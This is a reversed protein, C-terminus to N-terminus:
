GREAVNAVSHSLRKVVKGFTTDLHTLTHKVRLCDSTTEYFLVLRRLPKIFQKKYPKAISATETQLASSEAETIGRIILVNTPQEEDFEVKAFPLDDGEMDQVQVVARQPQAM